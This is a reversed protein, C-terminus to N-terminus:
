GHNLDKWPLIKNDETHQYIWFALLGNELAISLEEGKLITTWDLDWFFLTAALFGSDTVYLSNGFVQQDSAIKSLIFPGTNPDAAPAYKAGLEKGSVCRWATKTSVLAARTAYGTIVRLDIRGSNIDLRWILGLDPVWRWGKFTMKVRKSKANLPLIYRGTALRNKQKSFNLLTFPTKIGHDSPNPGNGTKNPMMVAEFGLRSAAVRPPVGTGDSIDQILKEEAFRLFCIENQKTSTFSIKGNPTTRTDQLNQHLFREGPPAGTAVFRFGGSIAKHQYPGEDLFHKLTRRSSLIEKNDDAKQFNQDYPLAGLTQDLKETLWDSLNQAQGYRNNTQHNQMELGVTMFAGVWDELRPPVPLVFGPTILDTAIRGFISLVPCHVANAMLALPAANTGATLGVDICLSGSVAMLDTIDDGPLPNILEIVTSHSQNLYDIANKVRSFQTSDARIFVRKVAQLGTTDGYLKQERGSKQRNSESRQRNSLSALAHDPQDLINRATKTAPSEFLGPSVLDCTDGLSTLKIRRQLGRSFVAVGPESELGYPASLPLTLLHNGAINLRASDLNQGTDDESYDHPLNLLLAPGPAQSYLDYIYSSYSCDSLIYLRHFRRLSGIDRCYIYNIGLSKLKHSPTLDELVFVLDYFPDFIKKFFPVLFAAASHLPPPPCVLYLTKRTSFHSKASVRIM